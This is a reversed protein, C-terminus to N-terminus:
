YIVYASESTSYFLHLSTGASISTITSGTANKVTVNGLTQASTSENRITITRGAVGTPLNITETASVASTVNIIQDQVTATYTVNTTLEGLTQVLGGKLTLTSDILASRNLIFGHVSDPNAGIAMSGSQMYFDGGGTSQFIYKNAGHTINSFYGIIGFATTGDGASFETFSGVNTMSTTASAAFGTLALLKGSPNSGIAQFMIMSKISDVSSIAYQAAFGRVGTTDHGSQTFLFTPGDFTNTGGVQTNTMNINLGLTNNGTSGSVINYNQINQWIIGGQLKYNETRSESGGTTFTPSYTGLFSGNLSLAGGITTNGEVDLWGAPTQTNIGVSDGLVTPYIYGHPAASISWAVNLAAFSDLANYLAARTALTFGTDLVFQMSSDNGIIVTGGFKFTIARAYLTDGRAFISYFGSGIGAVPTTAGIITIKNQSFLCFYPLLYLLTILIKKM